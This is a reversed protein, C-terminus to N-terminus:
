ILALLICAKAAAVTTTDMTLGLNAPGAHLAWTGSTKQWGNGGTEDGSCTAYGTSTYGHGLTDQDFVVFYTHGSTVAADGALTFERSLLTSSMSHNSLTGILTGPGGGAGDSDYIGISFYVTAGNGRGTFTAKTVNGSCSPVFPQGWGQVTTHDFAVVNTTTGSSIVDNCSM